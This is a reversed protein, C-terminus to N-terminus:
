SVSQLLGNVFSMTMVSGTMYIVTTLGTTPAYSASVALSATVNVNTIEFGLGDVLSSSVTNSQLLTDYTAAPTKGTLDFSPYHTMPM